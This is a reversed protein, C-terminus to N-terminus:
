HIRVADMRASWFLFTKALFKPRKETSNMAFVMFFLSRWFNLGKKPRIRPSSWFLVFLTKVLFEFFLTLIMEATQQQMDIMLFLFLDPAPHCYCTAPRTFAKALRLNGVGTTASFNQLLLIARPSMIYFRYTPGIGKKKKIIFCFQGKDGLSDRLCPRFADRRSLDM